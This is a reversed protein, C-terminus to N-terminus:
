QPISISHKLKEVHRPMDNTQTRTNQLSKRLHPNPLRLPPSRHVPVGAPLGHHIYLVACGCRARRQLPDRKPCMGAGHESWWSHHASINFTLLDSDQFSLPSDDDAEIYGILSHASYLMCAYNLVPCVFFRIWLCSLSSLCTYICFLFSVCM